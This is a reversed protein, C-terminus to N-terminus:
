DLMIRDFWTGVIAAAVILLIVFSWTAKSRRFRDCLGSIRFVLLIVFGWVARSVVRGFLDFPGSM